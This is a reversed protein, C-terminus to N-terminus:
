EKFPDYENVCMNQKPRYTSYDSSSAVPEAFTLAAADAEDPSYGLKAKILKKPELIMKDKEITYTTATLQAILEPCDPLAGGEKIWNCLDFYMETRKNAFDQTKHAQGNFHVGIPNRSLDRLHSIWGSGFGGTSDIFCSKAKFEEWERAVRGAGQSPDLGRYKKFPYMQIGQRRAIVSADDGFEAVDVGMVKAANGIEFERYYRKMSARIEDPGILANFSHSPFQGFVNVLTWNSERGYTKIFNESWEISVRSARLPSDPDSNISVVKWRASDRTCAAYLCGELHTPNGAQLIHGDVATSLAAEAAAMIGESMNGSEDLVVMPYDDHFGAIANAQQTKDAGQAYSKATCWWTNPSDRNYIKKKTYVFQHMLIPSKQQWRALETWLNDSLSQASTSLCMVVANPRTLLFNWICWALLATKGVGKAAKMAIRPNTPFARLVEIQWLDPEAGLVERVFAVPDQKWRLLQEVAEIM